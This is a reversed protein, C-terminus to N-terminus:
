NESDIARYEGHLDTQHLTEPLFFCALVFGLMGFASAIISPLMYPNQEFYESKSLLTIEPVVKRLSSSTAEATTNPTNSPISATWGSIAPALILGLSWTGTVLSMAAAKHEGSTLEHAMAKTVASAGNFFGSLFRVTLAMTFTTSAGFLVGGFGVSLM